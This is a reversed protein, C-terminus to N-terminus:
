RMAILALVGIRVKIAPLKSYHPQLPHSQKPLALMRLKRASHYSFVLSKLITKPPTLYVKTLPMLDLNSQMSTRRSQTPLVLGVLQFKPDEKSCGARLLKVLIRVQRQGQQFDILTAASQCKPLQQRM